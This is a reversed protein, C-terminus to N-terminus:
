KEKQIENLVEPYRRMIAQMAHDNTLRNDTGVNTHYLGSKRTGPIDFYIQSGCNCTVAKTHNLVAMCKLWLDDMNPCLEKIADLNLVESHLAKPPYLVGGCGVPLLRMQPTDGEEYSSTWESYPKLSKDVNLTILHAYQCCVCDPYRLHTEWLQELCNEPYLMDDDVTVVYDEPYEKMTYYYKKHSRIDEDCFRIELGREKLRLLKKPLNSEGNPFQSSALWLLIKKPKKTQNLLSTITIWVKDIRDTFTTLSVIIEGKEDVGKGSQSKAVLPFFSVCILKNFKYLFSWYKKECVKANRASEYLQQIM